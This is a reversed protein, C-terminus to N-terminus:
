QAEKMHVGKPWPEKTREPEHASTAGFQFCIGRRKACV